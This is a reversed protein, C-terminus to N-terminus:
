RAGQWSIRRTTRDSKKDTCLVIKQCIPDTSTVYLVNCIAIYNTVIRYSIVPYSVFHYSIICYWVIHHLIICFFVDLLVIGCLLIHYLVNNYLTIRYSCTIYSVSLYSKLWILDLGSVGFQNELRDSLMEHDVTNFAASLGLSLLDTDAQSQLSIVHERPEGPKQARTPITAINLDARSFYTPLCGLDSVLLLHKVSSLESCCMWRLFIDLPRIKLTRSQHQSTNSARDSGFYLRIPKKKNSYYFKAINEVKTGFFCTAPKETHKIEQAPTFHPLFCDGKMKM